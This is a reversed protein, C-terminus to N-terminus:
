AASEGSFYSKGALVAEIAEMLSFAAHQKCVFAVSGVSGARLAECVLDESAHGTLFIIKAAPSLESLQRAVEFGNLLPMSIDLVVIDPYLRKYLHLAEQGNAAEGVVAIGGRQLLDRVAGRVAAHDDAILVRVDHRM